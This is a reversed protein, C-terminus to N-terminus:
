YMNFPDFVPNLRKKKLIGSAQRTLHTVETFKEPCLKSGIKIGRWAEKVFVWHLVTADTYTEYIAYGLVVTPDDTLCAVKTIIKKNALAQTILSHYHEMFRPKHIRSYHPDGYYLGRLWTAYIFPEDSPLMDRITYSCVGDSM